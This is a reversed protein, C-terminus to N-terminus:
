ILCDTIEEMLQNKVLDKAFSTEVANCLLRYLIDQNGGCSKYVLELEKTMSTNSVTRNDTNVSVKLGDQLYQFLPYEEWVEVAKTQLNSTPCMEIGIGKEAFKKMLERDKQLAIGHGIRKAGLEYAEKVNELSGCEGSHITFPMDWRAARIFLERFSSTAFAAEDGALDLACVGEGLLERAAKLVKLNQEESHHRMACVIINSHIGYQRYGKELGKKVSEIVQRCSLGEHVSLMPAFRVEMYRVNEKDAEELLCYGARELGKETQLCTLPISFKELYESLSRCDDQVQLQGATISRDGSLERVLQVSLSGDLHCHLDIKPLKIIEIM